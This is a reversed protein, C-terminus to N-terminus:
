FVGVLGLGGPWPVVSLSREAAAGLHGEFHLWPVLFGASVGVLAGALVDTVHHQDAVVRLTSTAAAATYGAACPVWSESWLPVYQNQVCAVTAAAFTASAHGSPFSYYRGDEQCDYNDAALDDGCRRAFPRERSLLSKSVGTIAAALLQAELDILVLQQAVDPSARVIGANTVGDVLIPYAVVVSVLIDSTDRALLRGSTSRARLAERGAEDFGLEQFVPAQPDPGVLLSAGIAVLSAGMVAYDVSGVRGFSDDWHLGEWRSPDQLSPAASTVNPLLFTFSLAFASSFSPRSRRTM